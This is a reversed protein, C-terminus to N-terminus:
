VYVCVYIYICLNQTMSNNKIRTKVQKNHQHQHPSSLPSAFFVTSFNALLDLRPSPSTFYSAFNPTLIKPLNPNNKHPILPSQLHIYSGYRERPEGIAGKVEGAVRPYLGLVDVRLLPDEEGVLYQRAIEQLVEGGLQGM